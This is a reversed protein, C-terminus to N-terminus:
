NVEERVQLVIEVRRNRARGEPSVNSARPQSEGLGETIIHKSFDPLKKLIFVKIALARRESLILNYEESGRSDTHGLISLQSPDLAVITEVLSDLTLIYNPKIIAKDFDFAIDPIEFRIEKTSKEAITPIEEIPEPEIELKNVGKNYTHREDTSYLLEKNRHYNDCLRFSSSDKPVLQIKDILCVIDGKVNARHASTYQKSALANFNGLSMFTEDGNATYNLEFKRWGSSDKELETENSVLLSPKLGIPNNTRSIMEQDNFLIGIEYDDVILPKVHFSLVYEEGKILPCLLKTYLFIRLGIPRYVNEIIVLDSYKGSVPKEKSYFLINLDAPPIRFWAEPACASHYESCINNEEFDGNAILNQSNALLPLLLCLILSLKKM